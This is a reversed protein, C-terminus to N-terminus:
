PAFQIVAEGPARLLVTPGNAATIPRPGISRSNAFTRNEGVLTLMEEPYGCLAALDAFLTELPARLQDEPEGTAALNSLKAKAAAGFRAVAEGLSM